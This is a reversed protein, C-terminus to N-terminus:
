QTNFRRRSGFHTSPEGLHEKQPLGFSATSFSMAPGPTQMQLLHMASQLSM